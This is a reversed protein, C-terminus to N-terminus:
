LLYRTKSGCSSTTHRSIVSNFMPLITPSCISLRANPTSGCCSERKLRKRGMGVCYRTSGFSQHAPLRQRAATGAFAGALVVLFVILSIILSDFM